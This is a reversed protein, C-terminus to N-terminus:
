RENPTQNPQKDTEKQDKVFDGFKKIKRATPM